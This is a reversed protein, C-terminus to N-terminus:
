IYFHLFIYIYWYIFTCMYTDSTFIFLWVFTWGMSIEWSILCSNSCVSGLNLRWYHSQYLVTNGVLSISGSLISALLFATLMYLSTCKWFVDGVLSISGSLISALLSKTLMFLSSLSLIESWHFLDLCFLLWNSPLLCTFCTFCTFPSACKWFVNDVLSISGSLISAMICYSQLLCSPLHANESFFGWVNTM